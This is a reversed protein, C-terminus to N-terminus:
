AILDPLRACGHSGLAMYGVGPALRVDLADFNNWFDYILAPKAMAASLTEIPM